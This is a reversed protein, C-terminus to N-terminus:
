ILSWSDVSVVPQQLEIACQHAVLFPMGLIADESIHSVAFSGQDKCRLAMHAYSRLIAAHDWQDHTM